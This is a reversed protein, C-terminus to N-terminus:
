GCPIDLQIRTGRGPQSTLTLAGGLALTRDRMHDLGHGSGFRAGGRGNDSIAIHLAEDTLRGQISITSCGSHKVSNAVAECIAYYATTETAAPLTYDPLGVQVDVPYRRLTEKVAGALGMRLLSPHLGRALQGLEGLAHELQGRMEALAQATSPERTGAEAAGIMLGLALFHQQAGDHLLQELRRRETAASRVVRASADRLDAYQARVTDLLVANQLTLGVAAAAAHVLAPDRELAPDASIAGVPVGDSATIATVFRGDRDPGDRLPQHCVDLYGMDAPSWVALLLTPDELADRLAAQMGSTSGEAYLRPVLNALASRATQRRLVSILFAVPVALVWLATLVYLVNIVPASAELVGAIPLTSAICGAVIAAISIPTKLRREAPRATRLRIVWRSLFLVTCGLTAANTLVSMDRYLRMNPWLAPWWGDAPFQHWQPRSVVATLWPSAVFWVLMVRFVRREGPGLTHDPYRYLAWAGAIVWLVGVAQSLFPLPGVNWENCWSVVYLTASGIMALGSAIQGPEALLVAGITFVAVCLVSNAAAQPLEERWMPWFGAVAAATGAPVAVALLVGRQRASVLAASHDAARSTSTPVTGAHPGGSRLRFCRIRRRLAPFGASGAVIGEVCWDDNSLAYAATTVRGAQNAPPCSRFEADQLANRHHAAPPTV